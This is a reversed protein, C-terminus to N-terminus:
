NEWSCYLFHVFIWTKSIWVDFLDFGFFTVGIESKEYGHGWASGTPCAFYVLLLVSLACFSQTLLCSASLCKMCDLRRDYLCKNSWYYHFYLTSLRSLLTSDTYEATIIIDNIRMLTCDALCSNISFLYLINAQGASFQLM